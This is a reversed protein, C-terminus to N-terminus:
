VSTKKEKQVKRREEDRIERRLLKGVKSKPLMDRFEIYSPVKYAALKEKCFSILDAAGVGKADTKLVVIAKIREGVKPDPVGVVCAGVVVPHDQLVAEVESASVRYGKHKLIDASREVYIIQGDPTQTVFDSTRYYIEGDINIFSRKTEEPKNLYEKISHDSTVLLEGTEGMPVVELSEMDVVKVRRSPLPRGISMPNPEGEDIRSYTIHGAETSGYVQYIPSGVREKWRQLVERPLVDGGCYCYRLSSLNYTDQRDNELIMRYLAPVGLMWRVEYREIAALIADVQPVPMVVTTNGCNLGVAMFLGLAMIHFLPNIAIYSDGGFKLHGAFVVDTIDNVYSTHGWHNGAVGKPFGTTGGTYLIYSLDKIPDIEVEPPNPGSKLLKTFPITEAGGKVKGHPAKDFLGAIIRKPFCVLDLLNTYIVHKLGTNVLTERVYGYNTDHCIVVKAQSDKIMYELEYSTYIPSVLVVVAGIKQAALYAIIMQISNSLYLLVRDGKKVGLESLGTAFRYCKDKLNRYSFKDGLFVIATKDPYKECAQEFRTFTYESKM